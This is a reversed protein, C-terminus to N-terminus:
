QTNAGALFEDYQFTLWRVQDRWADRDRRLDEIITRLEVILKETDDMPMPENEVPPYLKFLDAVTVLWANDTDRRTSAIRGNKVANLITDRYMGTAEAAETLTMVNPMM